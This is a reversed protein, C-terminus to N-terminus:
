KKLDKRSDEWQIIWQKDKFIWYCDAIRTGNSGDTIYHFTFNLPLWYEEMSQSLGGGFNTIKFSSYFNQLVGTQAKLEQSSLEIYQRGDRYQSVNTTLILDIGFKKSIIKTLSTFDFDILELNKM